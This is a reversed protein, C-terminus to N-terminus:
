IYDNVEVEIRKIKIGGLCEEVADSILEELDTEIGAVGDAPVWYAESDINAHIIVRVRM